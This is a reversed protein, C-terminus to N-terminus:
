DPIVICNRLRDYAKKRRYRLLQYFPFMKSREIFALAMKLGVGGKENPRVTTAFYDSDTVQPYVVRLSKLIGRKIFENWDDPLTNIPVLNGLMSQAGKQNIVYGGTAKLGATDEIGYLNYEDKLRIAKSRKLKLSAYSLYFLLIVEDDQVQLRLMKLIDPLEPRLIMDDELILAVGINEAVIRKYIYFHSLTCGISGRTYYEPRNFYFDPDYSKLIESEDITHGNVADFIEFDLGLESLQKEMFHKREVSTELNIVFIKM